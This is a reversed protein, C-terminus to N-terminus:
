CMVCMCLTSAFLFLPLTCVFFLFLCQLFLIANKLDLVSVTTSMSIYIYIVNIHELSEQRRCHFQCNQSFIQFSSDGLGEMPRPVCVAVPTSFRKFRNSVNQVLHITMSHQRFHSEYKFLKM